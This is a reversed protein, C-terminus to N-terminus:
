SIFPLTFHFIAGNERDGERDVWLQGGQAEILARSITLGLGLGDPKSTFFPDFIREAMVKDLGPGNDEITVMSMGDQVASRVTISASVGPAAELANHLLNLLVKQTQLTNALVPPLDSELAMVRRFRRNGPNAVLMVTETILANLDVAESKADGKHLFAILEHLKQGARQAQAAAGQLARTMKEPNKLGGQWMRLAAESYASVSVLPQNLEHAIAAATQAAVQNKVLLEMADLRENGAAELRKRASINRITGVMRIPRVADFYVQGNASVHNIVGDSRRIARYEIVYRGTGAPNMAQKIAAQVAARDEPHTGDYFTEVSVPEDAGLGLLERVQEDWAIAGSVMDHDFIGLGAADKALRLRDDTAQLATLAKKRQEDASLMLIGYTLNSVLELLLQIEEPVFAEPEAAYLTLAGISQDEFLLPLAISSQYGRKIAAERWPIMKPNTLVNQNVQTAGTRIATGTPGLGFAVDGDWTIRISELYGAEYGSQAVPRVTKTADNEAVG